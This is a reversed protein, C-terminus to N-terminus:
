NKKRKQEELKNLRKVTEPWKRQKTANKFNRRVGSM